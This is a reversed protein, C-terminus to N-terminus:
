GILSVSKVGNKGQWAIEVELFNRILYALEDRAPQEDDVILASIKM